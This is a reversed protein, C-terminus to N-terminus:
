LQRCLVQFVSTQTYILLSAGDQSGRTNTPTSAFAFVVEGHVEPTYPIIRVYM